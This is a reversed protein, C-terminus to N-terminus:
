VNKKSITLQRRDLTGLNDTAKVTILIAIHIAIRVYTFMAVFYINYKITRSCKSASVQFYIPGVVYIRFM